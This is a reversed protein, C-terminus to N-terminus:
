HTEGPRAQPLVVPDWHLGLLERSTVGWGSPVGWALEPLGDREWAHHPKTNEAALQSLSLQSLPQKGHSGYRSPIPHRPLLGWDPMHPVPGVPQDSLQIFAQPLVKTWGALTTKDTVVTTQQTKNQNKKFYLQCTVNTEPACCLSARLTYRHQARPM